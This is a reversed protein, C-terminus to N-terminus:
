RRRRRVAPQARARADGRHHDQLVERNGPPAQPGAGARQHGGGQPWVSRQPRHPPHLERAAAAPRLQHGAVRGPRHRAGAPGHRHARPVRRRPVLERQAQEIEGHMSSVTFDRAAMEAALWEVKRRTSCYIISQTITLTDHLDCLTGLKWEEQEMAIYFQRIGELTLEDRCVLIQVPERMSSTTLDLLKFLSVQVDEPLFKFVDYIQEKFGTGLMEDAEDLYFLQCRDLRLVGRNIRAGAPLRQLDGLAQQLICFFELKAANIWGRTQAMFPM